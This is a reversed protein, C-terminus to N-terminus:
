LEIINIIVCYEDYYSHFWKIADSKSSNKCITNSIHYTSNNFYVIIFEKM